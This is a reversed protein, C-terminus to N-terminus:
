EFKVDLKKTDVKFLEGITDIVNEREKNNLKLSYIMDEDEKTINHPEFGANKFEVRNKFWVDFIQEPAPIIADEILQYFNTTNGGDQDKYKEIVEKNLKKFSEMYKKFVKMKRMKENLGETMTEVGGQKEGVSDGFQELEGKKLKFFSPFKKRLVEYMKKPTSEFVGKLSPVIVKIKEDKKKPDIVKIKKPDFRPRGAKEKPRVEDEKMAKNKSINKKQSKEKKNKRTKEKVDKERNIIKDALEKKVKRLEKKKEMEKEAKKEAAKQKQLETKQKIPDAKVNRPQKKVKQSVTLVLDKKVHDIKYKLAEIEKILQDRSKGKPDIGMKENYKKILRVIEARSMEGDPVKVM